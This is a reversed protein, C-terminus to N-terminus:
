LNYCYYENNYYYALITFYHTYLRIIGQYNVLIQMHIWSLGYFNLFKKFLKFLRVNDTVNLLRGQM